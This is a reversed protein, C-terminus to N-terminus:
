GSLWLILGSLWLILGSLWLILGSLLLILRIAVTNARIAQCGTSATNGPWRWGLTPVSLWELRVVRRCQVQVTYQGGM